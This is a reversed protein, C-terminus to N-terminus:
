IQGEGWWEMKGQFFLFCLVLPERQFSYSLSIKLFFFFFAEMNQEQFAYSKESILCCQGQWNLIRETSVSIEMFMYGQHIPNGRWKGEKLCAKTPPFSRRFFWGTVLRSGLSYGQSDSKLIGEYSTHSISLIVQAGQFHNESLHNGLVEM